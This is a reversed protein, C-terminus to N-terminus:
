HLCDHLYTFLLKLTTENGQTLYIQTNHLFISSPLTNHVTPSIPLKLKYTMFIEDSPCTYHHKQVVHVKLEQQFTKNTNTYDYVARETGVSLSHVLNLGLITPIM